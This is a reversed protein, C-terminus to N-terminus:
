ENLGMNKCQVTAEMLRRRFSDQPTIVERGVVYTNDDFFEESQNRARALIWIRVSRIDETSVAPAILSGIIQDNLSAGPRDNEDIVGDANTDLNRDLTGNNDSDIAWIVQPNGSTDIYTDLSKNNDVDYAYAMGIMQINEALLQRGGGTDRGLDTFGDGGGTVPYDYLTFSYTENGDVVGDRDLDAEFTIASNGALDANDNIDRFGIFELHFNGSLTPDYGAM